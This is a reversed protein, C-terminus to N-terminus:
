EAAVQYEIKSAWESSDHMDRWSLFSDPLRKLHAQAIETPMIGKEELIRNLVRKNGGVFSIGRWKSGAYNQIIWQQRDFALRYCDNLDFLLADTM